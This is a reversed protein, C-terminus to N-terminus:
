NDLLKFRSPAQVNTAEFGSMAAPQGVLEPDGHLAIASAIRVLAPVANRIIQRRQRCPQPTDLDRRGLQAPKRSRPAPTSSRLLPWSPSAIAIRGGVNPACSRPAWPQAALPEAFCGGQECLIMNGPFIDLPSHEM